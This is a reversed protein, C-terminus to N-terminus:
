TIWYYGDKDRRAGDGSTYRGAFPKLYTDFFRQHDGYVTRMMGPWPTLFVLAGEAEGTLVENSENVITNGHQ